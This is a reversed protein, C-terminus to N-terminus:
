QTVTSTADPTDPPSSLTSQTSGPQATNELNPLIRARIFDWNVEIVARLLQIGEDLDVNDFFERPQSISFALLDIIDDGGDAMVDLIATIWNDGLQVKGDSVDVLGSGFLTILVPKSLRAAKPFQSLMFKKVTVPSGAVTVTKGEPYLQQLSM